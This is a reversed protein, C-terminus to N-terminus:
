IAKVQEENLNHCTFYGKTMGNQNNIMIEIHNIKQTKSDENIQDVITEYIKGSYIKEFNPV